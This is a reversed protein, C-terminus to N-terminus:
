FDINKMKVIKDRKLMKKFKNKQMNIILIQIVIKIEVMEVKKKIILNFIIQHIHDLLKNMKKNATM